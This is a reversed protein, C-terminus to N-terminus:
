KERVNRGPILDQWECGLVAAVDKLSETGRATTYAFEGARIRYLTADGVKARHALEELSFGTENQWRDMLEKATPRVVLAIRQYEEAAMQLEDLRMERQAEERWKNKAIELDWPELGDLTEQILGVFEERFTRHVVFQGLFAEDPGLKFRVSSDKLAAAEPIWDAWVAVNFVYDSLAGIQEATIQETQEQLYLALIECM